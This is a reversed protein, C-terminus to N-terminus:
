ESEIVWRAPESATGDAGRLTWTYQGPSWEVEDQELPLELTQWGRNLDGLTQSLVLQGSTDTIDLVAEGAQPLCAWTSATRPTRKGWKWGSPSWDERHQITDPPLLTIQDTIVPQDSLIGVEMAWVSRGHTGIVLEKERPQFALDHVPARPLGPQAVTWRNGGDWSAYVGGDTGIFLHDEHEPSECIANM